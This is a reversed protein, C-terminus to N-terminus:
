ETAEKGRENCLRMTGHEPDGLLWVMFHPVILSLDAGVPIAQLFAFPFTKAEALPMGEFIRDQLYALQRPVGLEVEYQAHENGHISCGVACGRGNEWYTGQIIEDALAHMVVRNSYFDKIDQDNHYAQMNREKDKVM